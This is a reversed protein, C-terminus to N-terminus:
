TGTATGITMYEYHTNGNSDPTAAVTIDYGVAEDDKYTIEGITVVKGYPIVIRKPNNGRMVMDIVWVCDPTQASNVNVTVSKPATSTAATVTVNADVFVAKLVDENMVELLTFQFKDDQSSEVTYVTDGGWAKIDEFEKEINNKLGDESVYGLCKYDASLTASATTPIVLSGTRIARYIAGSTNPKGTSAYTATNAM